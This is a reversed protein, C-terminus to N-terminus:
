KELSKAQEWLREFEESSVSELEKQDQLVAKEMYQFRNQFKRVSQTLATEPHIQAFRALNVMSFLLDGFELSAKNNKSNQAKALEAKFEDLEEQVKEIVGSINDWDFGAKAARDSIKYARMLAPLKAPVSDLISSKLKDRSEQKKIKQWLNIVQDTNQVKQDGFVHPHRRIMKQSVIACVDQLNFQGAEEFLRIIFIIQFFVDGLEECIHESSGSEIADLLEFIEEALYISMSDPTQQRDWPCGNKGRLTKIINNISDVSETKDPFKSNKM